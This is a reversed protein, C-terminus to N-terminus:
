NCLNIDSFVQCGGRCVSFHLCTNCKESAIKNRM